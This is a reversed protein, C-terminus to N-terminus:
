RTAVKFAPVSKRSKRPVVAFLGFARLHEDSQEAADRLIDKALRLDQASDTLVPRLLDVPRPLDLPVSAGIRFVPLDFERVSRASDLYFM